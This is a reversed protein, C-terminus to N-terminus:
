LLGEARMDEYACEVLRLHEGTFVRPWELIHMGIVVSIQKESDVMLYSGAAGDWGFEGKPLGWETPKLRTRVGLGYGYDEGQICTFTNNVSLSSRETRILDLTEKKLLRYGDASVGGCALTAAFKAYDDVCSIVGAGGSDHNESFVHMNKKEAPTFGGEQTCAYVDFIEAGTRHFFSNQMGLPKFIVEDMYESFRKGAVVEVVAGLVDHCLSYEFREGPKFLLPTQIYRGVIERTSPAPNNKLLEVIPPTCLNYSLGATMTLLREITIEGKASREKGNSLWFAQEYEPLYKEVTDSLALKGEEVLRMVCAVTLPKTCSYLALLEKGNAEGNASSVCRFLPTYGRQICFDLYPIGKDKILEEIYNKTREGKV